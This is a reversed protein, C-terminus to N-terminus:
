AVRGPRDDPDSVDICCMHTVIPDHLLGAGQPQDLDFDLAAVMSGYKVLHSYNWMIPKPDLNLGRIAERWGYARLAAKLDLPPERMHYALFKRMPPYGCYIPYFARAISSAFQAPNRNQLPTVTWFLKSMMKGVKPMAVYTGDVALYFGLSIYSVNLVNDFLGRTPKIGLLRENNSLAERLQVKDVPRDFYLWGLYDDGMVMGRVKVPRLADPLMFIAQLTIERNLAANGVSTDWMGSKVTGVVKYKVTVDGFYAKGAVSLAGDAQKALEPSITAYCRHLAKRHVAQVNADWNSGDREDIISGEWRTRELESQTVFDSIESTNMAATYVVLYEVGNRMYTRSTAEGYAKSFARAEPANRYATAENVCYQIARAKKIEKPKGFSQINTELKTMCNVRGDSVRDFILSDEIKRLKAEGKGVM